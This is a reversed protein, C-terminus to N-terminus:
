NLQFFIPVSMRVKVPRGRQKGPNWKPALKLVRIAEEDCGAGIGKLIKFDTLNGEQDVVFQVFVRGEKGMRRAQKPYKIKKGLFKYFDELGGKPTPMVGAVIHIVDDDDDKEQIPVPAPAPPFTTKEIKTDTDEANIELQEIPDEEEENEVEKIIPDNIVQPPPPPPEVINPIVLLEEEEYNLEGLDITQLNDYFKWEFASIVLILSMILGINMFLGRKKTLDAKPNKRQEM